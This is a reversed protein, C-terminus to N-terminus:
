VTLFFFCVKSVAGSSWKVEVAGQKFGVVTGFCSLFKNKLNVTQHRSNEVAKLDGEEGTFVKSITNDVLHGDMFQVTSKHPRFVLGGLNYAYEPHEVLEYASVVEEREDEERDPSSKCWKVKVTREKPDVSRVVGWRQFGPDQSDDVTGKELVFSDPWFEHSDVINVPFLLNSDIGLSQSGDQWQVDIKTKTKVIVGIHQCNPTTYFSSEAPLVCWDGLQWNAYPYCPLVSLNDLHQVCPPPENDEGSAVCSLWDVYVVGADVNCITGQEHKYRGTGCFWRTSESASSEVRVRLGPYYPYQPDEILDASIAIIREPGDASLRCKTGDDFLITVCDIIREVKGLWPGCAVCDGVSVSRIKQLYQSGINRIKSGYINELDVTMDLNIVKGMQGLSDSVLCVIDGHLFGREFMLFDDIKEITEELSSFITRAQGGYLSEIDEQDESSSSESHSDFDSLLSDM